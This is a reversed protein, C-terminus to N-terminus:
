IQNFHPRLYALILIHRDCGCDAGRSLGVHDDIAPVGALTPCANTGQVRGMGTFDKVAPHISLEEVFDQINVQCALILTKGTVQCVLRIRGERITTRNRGRTQRTSTAGITTNAPIVLVRRTASRRTNTGVV